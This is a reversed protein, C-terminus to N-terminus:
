PKSPCHDLALNLRLVQVRPEGLLRWQRGETCQAVLARVEAEPIGRARAVRHVQYAAAAPSINPDLGSGSASVLDGPIPGQGPDAAQLRAVRGAVARALEANGPALNSGGSHAANCALPQGDPGLTASPRGWFDGPATFAQGIRESGLVRGDQRILSGEAQRPFLVQALGLVLLPYALGALGTLVLFSVIAPRLQANM